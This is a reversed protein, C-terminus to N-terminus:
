HSADARVQLRHMEAEPDYDINDLIKDFDTALPLADPASKLSGLERHWRREAVIIILDGIDAVVKTKEKQRPVPYYVPDMGGEAKAPSEVFVYKSPMLARIEADAEMLAHIMARVEVLTSQGQAPLGGVVRPELKGIKDGRKTGPKRVFIWGIAFSVEM